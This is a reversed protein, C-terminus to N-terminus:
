TDEAFEHPEIRSRAPITVALLVGAVTAHIGSLLVAYWLVVGIALYAAPRRVGSVNLIALAGFAAGVLLLADASPAHGYFLAIILVAGLDDAIALAALFVTLGTPVRSGLMALVGLAFAIDTAMPIAWGREGTGGANMAAYIAAPVLMGGLAACLPLIATRVSSLDGVLLERKIELGVLLFFVAMLADNIWARLSLTLPASSVGVALPTEWVREVAPGFSANAVLLAVLASLMLVVGGAPKWEAFRQFPQLVRDALVPTASRLSAM